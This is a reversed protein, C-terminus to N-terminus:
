KFLKRLLIKEKEKIQLKEEETIPFGYYLKDDLSCNYKKSLERCLKENEEFNVSEYKLNFEKKLINNITMVFTTPAVEGYGLQQGKLYRLDYYNLINSSNSLGKVLDKEMKLAALNAMRESPLSTYYCEDNRVDDLMSLYNCMNDSVTDVKGNLRIVYLNRELALELLRKELDSNGTLCKKYQYAHTLEHIVANVVHINVKLIREFNTNNLKENKIRSLSHNIEKKINVFITKDSFNYGSLCDKTPNKEFKYNKVYDELKKENVFLIIIQEVFKKDAYKGKISYDYVLKKLSDELM